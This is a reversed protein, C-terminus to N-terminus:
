RGRRAPLKGKNVQSLARTGLKQVASKRIVYEGRQAPILGDDKGIPRGAVRKIMGGKRQGPVGMDMQAGTSSPSTASKPAGTSGTDPTSSSGGGGPPSGGGGKDSAGGQSSALNKMTMLQLATSMGSQVGRSISNPNVPTGPSSVSGGDDYGRRYGRPKHIPKKM